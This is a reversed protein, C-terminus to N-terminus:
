AQEPQLPKIKVDMETIHDLLWTILFKEIDIMTDKNVGGRDISNIINRFHRRFLNHAEKHARLEPHNLETMIREEMIFHEETYSKLFNLISIVSEDGKGALISKILFNIKNLLIKHQEDIEEIGVSLEQSWEVRLERRNNGFTSYSIENYFLDYTDHIQRFQEACENFTDIVDPDFHTGYGENIIQMSKEHSFPEKYARESRLADYVDCIAFIRAELPIQEGKLGEPYGSGDWKEHHYAAISHSLNFFIDNIKHKEVLEKLIDKAFVTHQKIIEFEEPTLKGPKKLIADPVGVKGIDHLVSAFGINELYENSIRHRFPPKKRLEQSLLTGYHRTRELHDATENDKFEALNALCVVTAKQAEILQSIQMNRLHILLFILVFFLSFVAVTVFTGYQLSKRIETTDAVAALMYNLNKESLPTYFVTQTDSVHIHSERSDNETLRFNAPFNTNAPVWQVGGGKLLFAYNSPLQELLFEPAFFFIIFANRDGVDDTLYKVLYVANLESSILMQNVSDDAFTVNRLIEEPAKKIFPDYQKPYSESTVSLIPHRSSDAIILKLYSHDFLFDSVFSKVALSDPHELINQQKMVNVIRRLEIELNDLRNEFNAKTINLEDTRSQFLKKKEGDYMQRGTVLILVVFVAFMLAMMSYFYKPSKILRLIFM